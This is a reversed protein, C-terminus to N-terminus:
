STIIVNMRGLLCEVLVKLTATPIKRNVWSFALSTLCHHQVFIGPTCDANWNVELPTSTLARYLGDSKKWVLDPLIKDESVKSQASLCLWTPVPRPKKTGTFPFELSLYEACKTCTHKWSKPFLKPFGWMYHINIIQKALSLYITINPESFDSKQQTQVQVMLVDQHM